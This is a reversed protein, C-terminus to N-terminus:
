RRLGGFVGVAVDMKGKGFEVIGSRCDAATIRRRIRQRVAAFFLVAPHVGGSRRSWDVCNFDAATAENNECAWRSTFVFTLACFDAVAM